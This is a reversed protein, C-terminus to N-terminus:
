DKYGRSAASSLTDLISASTFNTSTILGAEALCLRRKRTYELCAGKTSEVM